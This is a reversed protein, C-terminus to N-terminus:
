LTIRREEIRTPLPHNWLKKFKLLHKETLIPDHHTGGRVNNVGYRDMYEACLKNEMNGPVHPDSQKITITEVVREMPHIRTWRSGVGRQHQSIRKEFRCTMGIYYKGQELELAYITTEHEKQPRYCRCDWLIEIGNGFVRVRTDGFWKITGM